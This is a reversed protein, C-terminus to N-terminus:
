ESPFLERFELRVVVRPPNAHAWQFAVLFNNHTDKVVHVRRDDAQCWVEVPADFDHAHKRVQILSYGNENIAIYKKKM